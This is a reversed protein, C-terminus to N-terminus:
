RRVWGGPGLSLSSVPHRLPDYGDRFAGELLFTVVFLPGALLGCRLM